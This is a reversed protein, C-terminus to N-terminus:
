LTSFVIQSSKFHHRNTQADTIRRTNKLHLRELIGNIQFSICTQYFLNSLFEKPIIEGRYRKNRTKCKSFRVFGFYRWTTVLNHCGLSIISSQITVTVDVNHFSLQWQRKLCGILCMKVTVTKVKQQTITDNQATHSM